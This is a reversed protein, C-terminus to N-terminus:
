QHTVSTIAFIMIGLEDVSPLWHDIRRRSEEHGHPMWLEELRLGGRTWDSLHQNYESQWTKESSAYWLRKSCTMPVSGLEDGLICPLGSMSNVVDDLMYMVLLTRRKAEAVIWDKWEPRSSTKEAPCLLGTRAIDCAFEQLNLMIDNDINPTEYASQPLLM